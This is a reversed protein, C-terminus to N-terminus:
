WPVVTVNLQTLRGLTAFLPIPGSTHSNSPANAADFAPECHTRYFTSRGNATNSAEGILRFVNKRNAVLLRLWDRRRMQPFYIGRFALRAFLM